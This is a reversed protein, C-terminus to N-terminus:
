DFIKVNCITPLKTSGDKYYEETGVFWDFQTERMAGIDIVQCMGNHADGNPMTKGILEKILVKKGSYQKQGALSRFPILQRGGTGAGWPHTKTVEIWRSKEPDFKDPKNKMVPKGAVIVEKPAYTWGHSSDINFVRGDALRLTGEIDAKKLAELSVKALEKGSADKLPTTGEPVAKVFYKTIEFQQFQGANPAAAARLENAKDQMKQPWAKEEAKIGEKRAEDIVADEAVDLKDVLGETLPLSELITEGTELAAYAIGFELKSSPDLKALWKEMEKRQQSDRKPTSM